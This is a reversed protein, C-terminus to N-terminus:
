RSGSRAADVAVALQRLGKATQSKVTGVSVGLVSATEAESLDAYYRLLLCARKSWPLQDLATLMDLQSDIDPENIPERFGPLAAVVQMRWRRGRRHARAKNVVVRRLYAHAAAADRLYGWRGLLAAFADQVIEEAAGADGTLGVALRVLRPRHQHWLIAIAEDRPLPESAIGSV